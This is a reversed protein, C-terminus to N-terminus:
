PANLQYEIAYNEPKDSIYKFDYTGFASVIKQWYVDGDKGTSDQMTGGGHPSVFGMIASGQITQGKIAIVINGVAYQSLITITGSTTYKGDAGLTNIEKYIGQVKIGSDPGTNTLFFAQNITIQNTTVNGYNVGVAGPGSVTLNAIAPSQNGSTSPTSNHSDSSATNAVIPSAGYIQTGNGANVTRFYIDSQPSQNNSHSFPGIGFYTLIALFAAIGGIVVWPNSKKSSENNKNQTM